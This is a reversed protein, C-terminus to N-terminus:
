GVNENKKELKEAEAELIKLFEDLRAEAQQRDKGVKAEMEIYYWEEQMEESLKDWLEAHRELEELSKEIRADIEEISNEKQPFEEKSM